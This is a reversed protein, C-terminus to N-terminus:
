DIPHTAALHLLNKMPMKFWGSDIAPMYKTARHLANEDTKERKDELLNAHWEDCVTRAQHVSEFVLFTSALFNMRHGNPAKLRSTVIGSMGGKPVQPDGPYPGVAECDADVFAVKGLHHDPAFYAFRTKLGRGKWMDDYEPYEEPTAIILKPWGWEEFSEAMRRALAIHKEGSATTVFIM